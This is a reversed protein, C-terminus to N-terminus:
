RLKSLLLLIILYDQLAIRLAKMAKAMHFEVGKITIGCQEAIEKYSLRLEKSMMFIEKTKQPLSELTITVISQIDEAFLEKPDCAELTAIRTSLEWAAHDRLKATVDSRMQYHQLHNLCKHKVTTLVYAPANTESTLNDRNEWFYIMSDNVIDEAIFMDRVYSNAFLVFNNRYDTFLRNFVELNSHNEM